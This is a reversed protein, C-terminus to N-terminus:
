YRWPHGQFHLQVPIKTAAVARGEQRAPEFRWHSLAERAATELRLADKTLKGSLTANTVHGEEDVDVLMTVVVAGQISWILDHTGEIPTQIIPKPPTFSSPASAASPPPAVAPPAPVPAEEPTIAPGTAPTPEPVPAPAPTPEAVSVASATASAPAAAPVPDPTPVPQVPVPEAVVPAPTSAIAPAGVIEGSPISTLAYSVSEGERGSVLEVWHNGARGTLWFGESDGAAHFLMEYGAHKLEDEAATFAQAPSALPCSLTLSQVMGAVSMKENQGTRMPAADEAKAACDVVECTKELSLVQPMACVEPKFREAGASATTISYSLAVGDEANVDWRIWHSGKRATVNVNNANVQDQTVNLYGARHVEADLEQRVHEFNMPAPCSYTLSNVHADLSGGSGEATEFTDHQKASCEQILCGEVHPLLKLDACGQADAACAANALALLGFWGLVLPATAKM